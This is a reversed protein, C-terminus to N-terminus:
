LGVLPGTCVRPDGFTTMPVGLANAISVFLDNHAPGMGAETPFLKNPKRPLRLYRGTRLAGGGSGALLWHLEHVDHSGRAFEGAWLVITNDLVRKGDVDPMQALSKLIRAFLNHLNLHYKRMVEAADANDKLQGNDPSTKHVLDHADATGFAGPPYGSVRDGLEEVELTIVRTLDCAFAMTAQRIQLDAIDWFMGNISGTPKVAGSSAQPIAACGMSAVSPQQSAGADLLGLRTELDRVSQTHADLKTREDKSLKKQVAAIEAQVYDLVSKDRLKAPDPGSPPPTSGGPTFGKFVRSWVKRPDAEVPLKQGPGTHPVFHYDPFYDGDNIGLELSPFTTKVGNSAFGKAIAQDITIGGALDAAKAPGIASLSHNQGMQHANGVLMPDVFQSLMDCGDVLLLDNKYEAYPQMLPGLSFSTETAGAAPRWFQTMTGQFTYFVLLRKPATAARAARPVLSPFLGSAGTLGLTRLFARRDLQM